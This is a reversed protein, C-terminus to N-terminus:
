SLRKPTFIVGGDLRIYDILGTKNAIQTEERVISPIMSHENSGKM